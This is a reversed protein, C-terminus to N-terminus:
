VQFKAPCIWKKKNDERLKWHNIFDPVLYLHNDNYNYKKVSAKDIYGNFKSPAIDNGGNSRLNEFFSKKSNNEVYPTSALLSIDKGNQYNLERKRREEKRHKFYERYNKYVEEFYKDSIKNTFLNDKSYNYTKLNKFSELKKEQINNKTKSPLLKIRKTKLKMKKNGIQQNKIEENVIEKIVNKGEEKEKNVEFKIDVTLNQYYKNKLKEINIQKFISLAQEADNFIFSMSNDKISFTYDKKLNLESIINEILLIIESTSYFKTIKLKAIFNSLDASKNEYSNNISLKKSVLDNSSNNKRLFPNEKAKEESKFVNPLINNNYNHENKKNLLDKNNSRNTLQENINNNNEEDDNTFLFSNKNNDYNIKEDNLKYNRSNYKEKSYNNNNNFSNGYQAGYRINPLYPNYKKKYIENNMM